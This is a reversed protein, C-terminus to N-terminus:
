RCPSLSLPRPSPLPRPLPITLTSPPFAPLLAFSQQVGSDPPSRSSDLYDLGQRKTQLLQKVSDAHHCCSHATHQEIAPAAGRTHGRHLIGLLVTTDACPQRSHGQQQVRGGECGRPAGAPSRAPRILRRQRRHPRPVPDASPRGAAPGTLPPPPLCALLCACVCLCAPLCCCPVPLCPPLCAPLCPVLPRHQAPQLSVSVSTAPSPVNGVHQVSNSRNSPVVPLALLLLRHTSVHCCCIPELAQGAMSSGPNDAAAWWERATKIDRQAHTHISSAYGGVKGDDDFHEWDIAVAGGDKTVLIERKYVVGPPKRLKAVLITEAHGNTLFPTCQYTSQMTPCRDMVASNFETPTYHLDPKRSKLRADLWAALVGISIGALAANLAPVAAAAVIMRRQQQQYPPQHQRQQPLPAAIAPQRQLPQKAKAISSLPSVCPQYTRVTRAHLCSRM